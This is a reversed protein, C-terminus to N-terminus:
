ICGLANLNINCVALISKIAGIFVVDSFYRLAGPRPQSKSCLSCGHQDHYLCSLWSFFATLDKDLRRLVTSTGDEVRSHRKCADRARKLTKQTSRKIQELEMENDQMDTDYQSEFFNIARGLSEM